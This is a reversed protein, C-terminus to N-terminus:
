SANMWRWAFGGHTARAGRCCSGIHSAILGTKNAAEKVSSFTAIAANQSTDLQVVPKSRSESIRRVRTGYARNYSGTAWELNSANNNIVNEDKHNVEPLNSFNPLFAIAVLRHVRCCKTKNNKCLWVYMYGGTLDKQFLIREKGYKLSKVCGLNSVQYDGEYGYIDKWIEHM